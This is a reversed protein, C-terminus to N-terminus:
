IDEWRVGDKWVRFRFFGWLDYRQKRQGGKLESTLLCVGFINDRAWM